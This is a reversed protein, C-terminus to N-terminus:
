NRKAKGLILGDVGADLIARANIKKELKEPDQVDSGRHNRRLKRFLQVQIM